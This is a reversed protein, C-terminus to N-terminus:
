QEIKVTSKGCKVINISVTYTSAYLTYGSKQVVKVSHYGSVIDSITNEGYGGVEGKLTGDIYISYPDKRWNDTLLDGTNNKECAPRNDAATPTVTNASDKSCSSVFAALFFAAFLFLHKM